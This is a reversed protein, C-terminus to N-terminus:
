DRYDAVIHEVESPLKQSSSRGRNVCTVRHGQRISENVVAFSICGTGGVILIDM